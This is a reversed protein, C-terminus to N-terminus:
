TLVENIRTVLQEVFAVYEEHNPFDRSGRLLLPQDIRDKLHEYNLKSCLLRPNSDQRESKNIATHLCSVVLGRSAIRSVRSHYMKDVM